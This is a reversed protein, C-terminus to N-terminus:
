VPRSFRQEVCRGITLQLGAYVGAEDVREEGQAIMTPIVTCPMAPVSARMCSELRCPVAM